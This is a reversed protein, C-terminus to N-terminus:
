LVFLNAVGLVFRFVNFPAPNFGFVAYIGCYVLEAAPRYYSNVFLVNARLLDLTPRSWCYYTNLLDDESFWSRFGTRTMRFFFVGYCLAFVLLGIRRWAETRFLPTWRPFATM